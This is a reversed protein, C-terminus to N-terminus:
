PLPPPPRPLLGRAPGRPLPRSARGPPPRGVFRCPAGELLPHVMGYLRGGDGGDGGLGRLGGRRWRRRGLVDHLWRRRRVADEAVLDCGCLRLGRGDAVRGGGLAIAHVRAPVEHTVVPVAIGIEVLRRRRASRRRR